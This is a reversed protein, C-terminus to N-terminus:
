SAAPTRRRRRQNTKRRDSLFNSGSMRKLYTKIEAAREAIAHPSEFTKNKNNVAAITISMIPCTRTVGGRGRIIICGEKRDEPEYFEPITRDFVKMVETCLKKEKDPTTVLVFDDGGIHGVFDSPNGLREAVELLLKATHTIVRDGATYGYRDNYAKFHDLDCYCFSLPEKNQIRQQVSQEIVLNGPLKTLPNVNAQEHTRRIITEIRARLELPDATKLIYDDAGSELGEIKRLVEDDVTLMIIPILRTAYCERLRECVEPGNMEGLHVDLLILDPLEKRAKALADPGDTCTTVKYNWSELMSGTLALSDVEDDVILVKQIV